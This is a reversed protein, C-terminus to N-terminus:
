RPADKPPNRRDVGTDDSKPVGLSEFDKEAREIMSGYGVAEAALRNQVAGIAFFGFLALLMGTLVGGGGWKGRAELVGVRYGYKQAKDADLRVHELRENAAALEGRLSSSENMFRVAAEENRLSAAQWAEASARWKAIAVDPAVERQQLTAVEGAM